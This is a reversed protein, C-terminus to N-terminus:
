DHQQRFARPSQGTAKKFRRSFYFPSDFGVRSSIEAISYGSHELLETARRIRQQEIFQQPPMDLPTIERLRSYGLSKIAIIGLKATLDTGILGM